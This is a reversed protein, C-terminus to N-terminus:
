RIDKISRCMQVNGFVEVTHWRRIQLCRNEQLTVRFAVFATSATDRWAAERDQWWAVERLSKWHVGSPNLFRHMSM